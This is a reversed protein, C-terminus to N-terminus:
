EGGGKELEDLLADACEVAMGAKDKPTAMYVKNALIGQMAMAAILERKSLGTSIYSSVGTQKEHPGRENIAMEVPMAPMKGNIM